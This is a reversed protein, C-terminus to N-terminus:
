LTPYEPGFIARASEYQCGQLREELEIKWGEDIYDGEKSRQLRRGVGGEWSIIFWYPRGPVAM